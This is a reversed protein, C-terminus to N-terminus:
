MCRLGFLKIQIYGHNGKKNMNVVLVGFETSLYAFEKHFSISNVTKDSVVSSSKFYPINAINHISLGIGGASQSILACRSSTEFIGAISDDTMSLLFCSSMQPKPSGANFLTPTAHIFWREPWSLNYTEIAADIDEGHIGVAVRMFLHQLREVVKGNMRMLYSRELTKFGFYDFEFDRDYIIASDLKTRHKLVTKHTKRASSAQATATKPDVYDFLADVM